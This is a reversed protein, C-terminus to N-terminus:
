RRLRHLLWRAADATASEGAADARMADRELCQREEPMLAVFDSVSKGSIAEIAAVFAM